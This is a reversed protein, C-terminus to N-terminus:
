RPNPFPLLPVLAMVMSGLNCQKIPSARQFWPLCSRPPHASVPQAPGEHTARGARRTPDYGEEAKRALGTAQTRQVVRPRLRHPYRARPEHSRRLRPARPLESLRVQSSRQGFSATRKGRPVTEWRGAPAPGASPWHRACARHRAVGSRARPAGDRDPRLLAPPRAVFVTRPKSAPMAPKPSAHRRDPTLANGAWGAETIGEELCPRRPLPLCLRRGQRADELRDARKM